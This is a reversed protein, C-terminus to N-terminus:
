SSGGGSRLTLRGNTRVTKAGESDGDPKPGDTRIKESGMKGDRLEMVLEELEKLAKEEQWMRHRLRHDRKDNTSQMGGFMQELHTIRKATLIMQREVSVSLARGMDKDDIYAELWRKTIYWAFFVAAGLAVATVAGAVFEVNV